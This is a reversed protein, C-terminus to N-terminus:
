IQMQARNRAAVRVTAGLVLDWYYYHSYLTGLLVTGWYYLTGTITILLSYLTGLVQLLGWVSDM